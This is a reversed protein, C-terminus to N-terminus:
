KFESIDLWIIELPKNANFEMKNTEQNKLLNPATNILDKSKKIYSKSKRSKECNKLVLNQTKM